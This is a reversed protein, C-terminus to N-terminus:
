CGLKQRRSKVLLFSMTLMKEKVVKLQHLLNLLRLVDLIMQCVVFLGLRQLSIKARFNLDFLNNKSYFYFTSGFITQFHWLNRVDM